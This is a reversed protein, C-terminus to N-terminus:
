SAGIACASVSCIATATMGHLLDQHATTNITVGAAFKRMTSRFVAPDVKSSNSAHKM